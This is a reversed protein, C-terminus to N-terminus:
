SPITDKWLLQSTAQSVNGNFQVQYYSATAAGSSPLELVAYGSAWVLDDPQSQVYHKPFSIGGGPSSQAPLLPFGGPQATYDATDTFVPFASNGVCRGVLPPFSSGAAQYPEYVELVHEHGWFWAVISPNGPPSAQLQIGQWIALSAALQPNQWAGGIQEFASVLQHHSFLIVKRGGSGAIQQRHWEVEDDRLHTNDQAVELLDSDYYGTDMGELQWQDNALAWFSHAQTSANPVGANLQQLTAYFGAGGSYYDHNGPLTYVPINLGYQARAANVLDLFNSKQEDPTGAYYVDGVHILLDPKQRMLQDLVAVAEQEGTGWDGLIGVVLTDGSAAPPLPFTGPSTYPPQDQGAANTPPNYQPAAGKWYYKLWSEVAELWGFVNCTNKEWESKIETMMATDDMAWAIVYRAALDVCPEAAVLVAEIKEVVAEIKGLVSEAEHAISSTISPTPTGQAKQTARRHQYANDATRADTIEGCHIRHLVHSAAHMIPHAPFLGSPRAGPTRKVLVERIISQAVSLRANHFNPTRFRAM